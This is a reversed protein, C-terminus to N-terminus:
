RNDKDETKREKKRGRKKEKNGERKERFVSRQNRRQEDIGNEASFNRPEVAALSGFHFFFIRSLKICCQSV